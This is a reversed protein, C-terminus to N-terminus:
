SKKQWNSRATVIENSKTSEVGQRQEIHGCHKCLWEYNFHQHTYEQQKDVTRERDGIIERETETTNRYSKSIDYLEQEGSWYLTWDKGCASCRHDLAVQSKAWPYYMPYFLYPLIYLLTLGMLATLAMSIENSYGTESTMSWVFEGLAEFAPEVAWLLSSLTSAIFTNITSVISFLTAYEQPDVGVELLLLVVGVVILLVWLKFGAWYAKSKIEQRNWDTPEYTKGSRVAPTPGNDNSESM